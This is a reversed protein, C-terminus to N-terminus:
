HLHPAAVGEAVRRRRSREGPWLRRVAAEVDARRHDPIRALADRREEVTAGAMVRAVLEALREPM